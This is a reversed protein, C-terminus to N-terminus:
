FRSFYFIYVILAKKGNPNDRRRSILFIIQAKKFSLPPNKSILELLTRGGLADSTTTPFPRMM